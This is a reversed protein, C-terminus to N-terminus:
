KRCCVPCKYKDINVAESPSVNVCSGHYWEDCMDCQIMFRGNYRQKCVCYLTDDNEDDDKVESKWNKIWQPLNTDNCPKLRDHNVVFVSNKLKVQFIYSSMKRVIVGPGKWPALLKRCKGKVSATDLLYVPDGVEYNRELVKLDYHKKMRKLSTKLKERALNHTLQLSKVLSSIYAEFDAYDQKPFPFMIHAATNVEHGFLMKNPTFGTQRCVASRLAGAVQQLHVDWNTQTKGVYCRLADMVTRNYREVQGNASPRYATMRAKHIELIKCLQQFLKSEFNRGQDTLIQFPVGLRSFFNDVCARATTEATQDPIAVCEVWKTFSDVFVLIYENGRATKPLPGLVDLHVKEMPMGAHYQIMEGRYNRNPKKNRNCTECGVIYQRLDRSMGFWYFRENLRSKTREYSQHGSSPIDHHLKLAEARMNGPLMLLPEESKPERYYLVDDIKEVCEKHLWWFKTAADALFLKAKEAKDLPEDNLYKKVFEFEPEEAQAKVIEEVSFGWSTVHSTNSADTDATVVNVKFEEEENMRAGDCDILIDLGGDLCSIYQLNDENLESLDLMEAVQRVTLIEPTCSTSNVSNKDICENDVLPSSVLPPVERNKRVSFNSENVLFTSHQSITTDSSCNEHLLKEEPVQEASWGTSVGQLGTDEAQVKGQTGVKVLPVSVGLLLKENNEAQVNCGNVLCWSIPIVSANRVQVERDADSGAMQSLPVADDVDIVFSAWDNHMKVCGKCGGCPLKSPDIYSDTLGWHPTKGSDMRSLVDANTHFKAGRHQMQLINYQSLEELWRAMQGQPEKFNILWRLSSHDTRVIFPKGLLYHRYHRTFRVVALLERRTVCYRRQEKSLAFSGYSIVKEEGDQVQSLEAGIATGSADTDLIFTGEAIPLSLVPPTTLAVKLKNFAEQQESSWEFKGKVAVRYLPDAYESFHSIFDRHYNALGMFRQADKYSKPTPWDLVKEIDKETMRIGDKSVMRGLFEVERQFLECKRPKLKLGYMRLKEFVESLNQVHEDFSKGLVLIDDLFALVTKWHLGRLVLNMVRSFTAPANCLGFGMRVHEYLGYRTLFATKKRDEEKIKVQWYASNADLKSFWINGALTDICDHVLPLPFVDKTTVQNLARYDICWRVSGDRKRILVPAAAWDSTSEQIVGAKLMKDLLAKEEDAFGLPTRRMRLKIPKADGTEIAHQIANLNGLDFDTSAFVDEYNKLLKSLEVKEESNLNKVSAWYTSTLHDPIDALKDNESSNEIKEFKSSRNESSINESSVEGEKSFCRNVSIEDEINARLIAYEKNSDSSEESIFEVPFARGIVKGKSIVVPKDRPNVLCVIPDSGGKRLIKPAIVKLHQFTEIVYDSMCKNMKCSVRKLSGAPITIRKCTTVATSEQVSNESNEATLIVQGDFYLVGRIFDMTCQPQSKLIDHGFLMDEALPAVIVYYQYWANGIRMTVPGVRKGDTLTSGDAMRLKVPGVIPPKKPLNEFLKESLISVEAGSDLVARVNKGSIQIPIVTSSKSFNVRRVEVIEVSNCDLIGSHSLQKKLISERKIKNRSKKTEAPKKADCHSCDDSGSSVVNGTALQSVVGGTASKLVVKDTASVANNAATSQVADQSVAPTFVVNNTAIQESVVDKTALPEDTIVLEDRSFQNNKDSSNDNANQLNVAPLGIETLNENQSPLALSVQISSDVKM